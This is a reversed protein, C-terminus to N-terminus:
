AELMVRKEFFKPIRVLFLSSKDVNIQHESATEFRKLLQLVINASESTAKYFIYSDDAFFMHSITPATWAVKIGKILKRQKLDHLLAVLREVRVLFLYSSM